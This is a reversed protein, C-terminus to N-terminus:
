GNINEAQMPNNMKRGPLPTKGGTGFSPPTFNWYDSPKGYTELFAQADPEIQQQAWRWTTEDWQVSAELPKRLWKKLRQRVSKPLSLRLRILGPVQRLLWMAATDQSHESTVNQPRNADEQIGHPSIQLFQCCRRLVAHPDAKFDEFFLVLIRDDPYYKRYANIQKLYLSADILVPEQRLAERFPLGPDIWGNHLLQLWHSGLREMPHRVIYILKAEPLHRAIREPVHPFVGTCSYDISGEGIAKASGAREFLSVYWEWGRSFHRSFFSPEKPECMFVQPHKGLYYCLSTTASKPAGIVLFNPHM